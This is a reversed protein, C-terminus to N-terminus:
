FQMPAVRSPGSCGPLACGNGNLVRDRDIVGGRSEALGASIRFSSAPMQREEPERGM